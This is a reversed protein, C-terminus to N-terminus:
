PRRGEASGMKEIRSWQADTVPMVSLRAMRVLLFDAFFPDAKIDALRVPRPLRRGAAIAVSYNKGAPDAPDPSPASAVTATGVVAKEDGTHYYFVRDGRTMARLHKQALANKVGSWTTRGDRLLDAFNYHAPEEKVLWNM